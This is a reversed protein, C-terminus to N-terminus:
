GRGDKDLNGRGLDSSRGIFGDSERRGVGSGIVGEVFVPTMEHDRVDWIGDRIMCYRCHCEDLYIWEQQNLAVQWSHNCVACRLTVFGERNVILRKLTLTKPHRIHQITELLEEDLAQLEQGEIDRKIKRALENTDIKKDNKSSDSGYVSDDKKM